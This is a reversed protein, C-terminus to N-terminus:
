HLLSIFIIFTDILFITFIDSLSASLSIDFIDIIQRLTDILTTIHFYRPLRCLPM